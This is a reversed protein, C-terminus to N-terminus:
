LDIGLISEALDTIGWDSDADSDVFPPPAAPGTPSQTTVDVAPADTAIPIGVAGALAQAVMTGFETGAAAGAIVGPTGAARGGLVGGAVGGLGGGVITAAQGLLGMGPASAASLGSGFPHNTGYHWVPSVTRMLLAEFSGAPLMTYLPQGTEPQIYTEGRAIFAALEQATRWGVEDWYSWDIQNRVEGQQLNLSTVETTGGAVRVQPFQGMYSLVGRLIRTLQDMGVVPPMNHGSKDQRRYPAKGAM